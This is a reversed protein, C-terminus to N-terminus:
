TRIVKQTMAAACHNVVLGASSAHTQVYEASRTKGSSSAIAELATNTITDPDSPRASVSKSGALYSLFTLLHIM